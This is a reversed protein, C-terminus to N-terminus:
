KMEERYANILEIATPKRGLKSKLKYEFREYATKMFVKKLVEEVAIQVDFKDKYYLRVSSEGELEENLIYKCETIGNKSKIIIDFDDYKIPNNCKDVEVLEGYGIDKLQYAPTNEWVYGSEDRIGKCDDRSEYIKGVKFNEEENKCKVCKWYRM